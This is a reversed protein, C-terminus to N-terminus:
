SYRVIKLYLICIEATNTSNSTFKFDLVGSSSYNCTVVTISLEIHTKLTLWFFPLVIDLTYLLLPALSFLLNLPIEFFVLHRDDQNDSFGVISIADRYVTM